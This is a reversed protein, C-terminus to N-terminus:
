MSCGKKGVQIYTNHHCSEVKTYVIPALVMTLITVLSCTLHGFFQQIESPCSIKTKASCGSQSQPGDLRANM